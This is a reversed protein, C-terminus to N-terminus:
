FFSPGNWPTLSRTGFQTRLQPSDMIQQKLEPYRRLPIKLFDAYALALQARGWQWTKM